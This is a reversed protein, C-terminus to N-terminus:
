SQYPEAARRGPTSADTMAAEADMPEARRLGELIRQRLENPACQRLCCRQVIAVVRQIQAAELACRPCLEVHQRIALRLHQGSEDQDYLLILEERVQRCRM